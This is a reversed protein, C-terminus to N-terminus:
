IKGRTMTERGSLFEWRVFSSVTIASTRRGYVRESTLAVGCEPDDFLDGPLAFYIQKQFNTESALPEAPKKLMECFKPSKKTSSLGSM